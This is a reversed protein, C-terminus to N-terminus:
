HSGQQEVGSFTALQVAYDSSEIPNLPDQNEMQATLMKLFTEFDSNIMAKAATSQSNAAPALGHLNQGIEM